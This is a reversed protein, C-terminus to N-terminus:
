VEDQKQVTKSIFLFDIIKYIKEHSQKNVQKNAKLHTPPPDLGFAIDFSPFVRLLM